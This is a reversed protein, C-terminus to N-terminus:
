NLARSTRRGKGIWAESRGPEVELVRNFYSLAEVNNGGILATRAMGMLNATQSETSM